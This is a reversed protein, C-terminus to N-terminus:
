CEVNGCKGYYVGANRGNDDDGSSTHVGSLLYWIPAIIVVYVIIAVVIWHEIVKWIDWKNKM